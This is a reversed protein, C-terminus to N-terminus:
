AKGKAAHREGRRRRWHALGTAGIGFGLLAITTPEPVVILQGTMEDFTLFQGDATSTTTQWVGPTGGTRAFVFGAYPSGAASFTLSTFGGSPPSAFGSFLQFATGNAYSGSLSLDLTGNYTLSKNPGSFAIQDYLTGATTGTVQMAITSNTAALLLSDLTFVGTANPATGPSLTAGGGVVVAGTM